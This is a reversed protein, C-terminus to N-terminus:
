SNGGESGSKGEVRDLSMLDGSASPTFLFDWWIRFKCEPQQQRKEQVMEKWVGPTNQGEESVNSPEEM